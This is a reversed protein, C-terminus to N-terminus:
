PLGETLEYLARGRIDERRDKANTLTRAHDKLLMDVETWSKWIAAKAAPKVM